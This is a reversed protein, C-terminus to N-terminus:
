RSLPVYFKSTTLGFVNFDYLRREYSASNSNSIQKTGNDNEGYHLKTSGGSNNRKFKQLKLSSLIIRNINITFRKYWSKSKYKLLYDNLDKACDRWDDYIGYYNYYGKARKGYRICCINNYEKVYRSNLGTENICIATMELSKDVSGTLKYFYELINEHTPDPIRVPEPHIEGYPKIDFGPANVVNPLILCIILFCKM